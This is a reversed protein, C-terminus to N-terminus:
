LYVERKGFVGFLGGTHIFINKMGEGKTLFHDYYANFAKATYAPDLLIGSSMAFRKVLEIKHRAIKKYGEESYGDIIILNDPNIKINKKNELRCAEALTLIKTRIIEAPYLVNVAYIKLKLSSVAAAYLLGAATGGTGAAITIGEISKLNIQQKMEELCDAYGLIGSTTSGGEPIVFVRKGSRELKMKEKLMVENVEHYQKKDLYTIEAGYLRSLFLNGDPDSADKGWLFLRTRFGTKAAAITTARAHNSQVAGCTFIIDAKEKKAQCLLYELKRIKNGSLEVGTLDDRKILFRNGEFQIKELPTPTNALKLKKLPMKIGSYKSYPLNLILFQLVTDLAHLKILNRITM